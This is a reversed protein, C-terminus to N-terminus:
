IIHPLLEITVHLTISDQKCYKKELIGTNSIFSSCGFGDTNRYGTPRMFCEPYKDSCEKTVEASNVLNNQNNMQNILLFTDRYRIPWHLKEDFDGKMVVIRVAVKGTSIYDWTIRCQCKYLGVYFPDSYTEEKNQIKQTVVKVNWELRGTPLQTYTFVNKSLSQIREDKDTMEIELIKSNERVESLEKSVLSNQKKFTSFKRKMETLEQKVASFEIEQVSIKETATNLLKSSEFLRQKMETVSLKFHVHMFEREHVDTLRREMEERCGHEWYACQVIQLPCHKDLHVPIDKRKVVRVGNEGERSCSNPCPLPFMDCEELHPNMESAKVEGECLDCTVERLPCSDILHEPIYRREMRVVEGKREGELSVCGLPCAEPFYICIELHHVAASM